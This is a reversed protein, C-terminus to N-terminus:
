RFHVVRGASSRSRAALGDTTLALDYGAPVCWIEEEDEKREFYLPSVKTQGFFHFQIQRRHVVKLCEVAPSFSSGLHKQQHCQNPEPPLTFPPPPPLPLPSVKTLLDLRKRRRSQRETTESSDTDMPARPFMKNTRTKIKATANERSKTDM